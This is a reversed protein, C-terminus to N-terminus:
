NAKAVEAAAATRKYLAEALAGQLVTKSFGVQDGPAVCGALSASLNAAAGREDPTAPEALVFSRTDEPDLQVVCDAFAVLPDAPAAMAVQELAEPLSEHGFDRMYVARFIAGRFLSSNMTLEGNQLCDNSAIKALEGTIAQDPQSLARRVATPRSKVICEAYRNMTDRAQEAPSIDRTSLRVASDPIIQSQAAIPVLALSAGIL